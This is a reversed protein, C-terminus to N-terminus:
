CNALTLAATLAFDRGTCIMTVSTSKGNNLASSPIQRSVSSTKILWTHTMFKGSPALDRHSMMRLCTLALAERKPLSSFLRCVGKVSISSTESGRRPAAEEVGAGADSSAEQVNLPKFLQLSLLSRVSTVVYMQAVIHLFCDLSCVTGAIGRVILM